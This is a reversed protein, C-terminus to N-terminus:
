KCFDAEICGLVIGGFNPWNSLYINNALLGYSALRILNASTVTTSAFHSAWHVIMFAVDAPRKPSDKRITSNCVHRNRPRCYQEMSTRKLIEWLERTRLAIKACLATPGREGGRFDRFASEVRRGAYRGPGEHKPVGKVGFAGVSSPSWPGPNALYPTKRIVRTVNTTEFPPAPRLLVQCPRPWRLPPGCHLLIASTAIAYLM